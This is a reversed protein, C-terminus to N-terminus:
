DTASVVQLAIEEEKNMKSEETQLDIWHRIKERICLPLLPWKNLSVQETANHPPLSVAFLYWQCTHPTIVTYLGCQMQGLGSLCTSEQDVSSRNWTARGTYQGFLVRHKMCKEPRLWEPEPEWTSWLPMSKTPCTNQAKGLDLFSLRGPAQCTWQRLLAM